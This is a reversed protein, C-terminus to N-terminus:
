INLLKIIESYELGECILHKYKEPNFYKPNIWWDEFANGSLKVNSCLLYYNKRILFQRQKEREIDEYNRYADHEITIIKYEYDAEFIKLLASYRLGDGEIDLTLYDIVKPLNYKEFLDNYNCALADMSVFPCERSKWEVSLDQIDLSVGYWGNKELLYTNNINKPMYCGVDVFTGKYDNEFFSMVFIDQGAQSYTEIM